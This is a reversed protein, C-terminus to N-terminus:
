STQNPGEAERFEPINGELLGGPDAEVEKGVSFL